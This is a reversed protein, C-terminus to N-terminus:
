LGLEKVILDIMIQRTKMQKPDEKGTNTRSTRGLIKTDIFNNVEKKNKPKDVEQSLKKLVLKKIVETEAPSLDSAPQIRRLIQSAKSM